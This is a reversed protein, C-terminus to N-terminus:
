EGEFVGMESPTIGLSPEGCGEKYPIPLCSDGFRGPLLM